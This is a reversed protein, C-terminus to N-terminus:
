QIERIQAAPVSNGGALNAILGGDTISVSVVQDPLTVQFPQAIGDVDGFARIQYFDNPMPEGNESVGDWNFRMEGAAQPGFSARHVLQGSSNVIELTVDSAPTDITIGGAIGGRTNLGTQNTPILVNRGVLSAADITMSSRMSAVMTDMSNNLNQLGELSSFQALQAIFAENKAPELPDQNSIQAIMLELFATRGLEEEQTRGGVPTQRTEELSRIGPIDIFGM